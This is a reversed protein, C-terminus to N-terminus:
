FIPAILSRQWYDFAAQEDMPHAFLFGQGHNCGLASLLRAQDPNEVGEATTQLHLAEALSQITRVIAVQDRDKEMHEVFSRDIKLVDISLRQLCALNSYGTGFDDMAIRTKLAKLQKFVAMAHDPDGVVASETLEIMLRDGGVGYQTLARRVVNVIDDRLLQIASVNVSFFCDMPAADHSADWQALVSVAKNIAWQGLPIILGSEEAVPIFDNPAIPQGKDDDWRALAEFGAVSGTSLNILPQFALTLRDNEIADRLATEIAFRNDPLMAAAPEYIEMRGSSQARKLAIQAHRIHDASDILGKGSSQIAVGMACDVSITLEGIRFPHSFCSHIRRALERVDQQTGAVRSFIAFEDGGTRALMDSGRMNYKLRRAVAVILKDGADPGIHENIRSFRSLNLLLIANEIGAKQESAAENSTDSELMAVFGSRNPLGTLTDFTLERRLDRETQSQQTADILSLLFLDTTGNSAELKQLYAQMQAASDEAGIQCIFEHAGDSDKYAAAIARIMDVPQNAGSLSLGLDDFKQNSTHVHFHGRAMPMVLAAAIPLAHLWGISHADRDSHEAKSPPEMPPAKGKVM